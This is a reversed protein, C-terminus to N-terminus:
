GSRTLAAYDALSVRHKLAAAEAPTKYVFKHFLVDGEGVGSEVKFLELSMRPGLESLRMSSKQATVNGKGLYREPLVVQPTM